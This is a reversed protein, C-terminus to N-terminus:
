AHKIHTVTKDWTIAEPFALALALALTIDQVQQERFWIKLYRLDKKYLDDDARLDGGASKQLGRELWPQLPDEASYEDIAEIM